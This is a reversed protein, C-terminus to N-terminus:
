KKKKKIKEDLFSWNPIETTQLGPGDGPSVQIWNLKGVQVVQKQTRRHYRIKTQESLKRLTSLADLIHANMKSNKTIRKALDSIVKPRKKEIQTAYVKESLGRLREKINPIEGRFEDELLILLKQRPTDLMNIETMLASIKKACIDLNGILGDEYCDCRLFKATKHDITIEPDFVSEEIEDETLKEKKIAVFNFKEPDPPRKRKSLNTTPQPEKKVRIM